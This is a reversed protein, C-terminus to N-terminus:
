QLNELNVEQSELMRNVSCKGNDNVTVHWWCSDGSDKYKNSLILM